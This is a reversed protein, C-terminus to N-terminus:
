QFTKHQTEHIRRLVWIAEGRAVLVYRLFATSIRANSHEFQEQRSSEGCSCVLACSAEERSNASVAEALILAGMVPSPATQDGAVIRHAAYIASGRGTEHSLTGDRM